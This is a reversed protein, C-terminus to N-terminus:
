RLGPVGRGPNGVLIKSLFRTKLKKKKNKIKLQAPHENCHQNRQNHCM